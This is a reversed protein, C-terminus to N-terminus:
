SNEFAYELHYDRLSLIFRDIQEKNFELLILIRIILIARLQLTLKYLIKGSPAGKKLSTIYHTYYNRADRVKRAFDEKSSVITESLEYLNYNNLEDCLSIIREKFSPEKSYNLRDKLWERYQIDVSNLINSVRERHEESSIVSNNGLRRHLTELARTIDLFETTLYKISNQRYSKSLLYFVPELDKYYEYWNIIAREFNFAIDNYRFLFDTKEESIPSLFNKYAFYLNTDRNFKLEDIGENDKSNGLSASKITGTKLNAFNIFEMFPQVTDILSLFSTPAEVKITLTVNEDLAFNKKHHNETCIFNFEGKFDNTKFEINSPLSYQISFKNNESDHIYEIGSKNMWEYLDTLKITLQDFAANDLCSYYNGILM